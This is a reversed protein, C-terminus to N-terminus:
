GIYSIKKKELKDIVEFFVKKVKELNGTSTVNVNGATIEHTIVEPLPLPIMAVAPIPIREKRQKQKDQKM